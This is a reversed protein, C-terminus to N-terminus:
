SDGVRDRGAARRASIARMGLGSAILVGALIGVAALFGRVPIQLTLLVICLTPVVLICAALVL